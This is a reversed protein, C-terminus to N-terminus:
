VTSKVQTLLNLREVVMRNLFLSGQGGMHLLALISM